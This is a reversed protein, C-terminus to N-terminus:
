PAIEFRVQGERTWRAILHDFRYIWEQPGAAIREARTFRGVTLAVDRYAAHAPRPTWDPNVLGRVTELKGHAARLSRYPLYYVQQAGEGLATLLLKPVDTAHAAPDYTKDNHWAYGIEWAEIPREGGQAQMQMKIWDMVPALLDWAEYYHLQYIDPRPQMQFVWKMVSLDYQVEPSKLLADLEDVSTIEGLGRREVYRNFWKIAAEADGKEYLEQAIALGYSQSTMGFDAVLAGPDGAKVAAYGVPWLTQYEALTGAWYAPANVENEIAYARVRGRYRAAVTEVWNAYDILNNPPQSGGYASTKYGVGWHGQGTVLKLSLDISCEEAQDVVADVADFTWVDQQPEVAQWPLALWIAQAGISQVRSCDFEYFTEGTIVVGFRTTAAAARTRWILPLHLSTPTPTFTPTPTSTPTLTPTPSPTPTPTS